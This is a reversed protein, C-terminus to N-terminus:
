ELEHSVPQDDVKQIGFQDIALCSVNRRNNFRGYDLDNRIADKAMM